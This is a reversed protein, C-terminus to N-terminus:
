CKNIGKEYKKLCVTEFTSYKKRDICDFWIDEQEEISKIKKLFKKNHYKSPIIVVGTDDCVAISNKYLKQKEKILERIEKKIKVPENIYGVPNFGHCWIPWNEKLIRPADRLLGNTVIANAQKYLILYKSVLDGFIAKDENDLAEIFVIDNDSVKEIQKHVNWNTGGTAYVWFLNGVKFHGKNIASVNYIAGSKGMCDALETTSVRNRKIFDIIVKKM